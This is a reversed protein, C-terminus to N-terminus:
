GRRLHLVVGAGLELKIELGLATDTRTPSLLASVGSAGLGGLQVFGRTSSPVAAKVRRRGGRLRARWAYFTSEAIGKRQCFAPMSLGSAEFASVLVRWRAQAEPGTYSSDIRKM